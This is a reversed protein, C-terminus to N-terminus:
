FVVVYRVHLDYYALDVLFPVLEWIHIVNGQESQEVAVVLNEFVKKNLGM